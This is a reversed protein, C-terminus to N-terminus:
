CSLYKVFAIIKGGYNKQKLVNFAAFDIDINEPYELIIIGGERLIKNEAIAQLAPDYLGAEYPPDIYVVDFSQGLNKLKKISDGLIVNPKIGLLEYNAKINFYTKKDREIAFSEEFGRSVAELGMIGSGAFLDLFSKDEFDVFQLLMDFIAARTKSLTPRVNGGKPSILKRSNFKGGTINM